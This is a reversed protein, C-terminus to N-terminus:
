LQTTISKKAWLHVITCLRIQNKHIVTRTLQVFVKMKGLNRRLQNQANNKEDLQGGGASKENTEDHWMSQASCVINELPHGAAHPTESATRRPESCSM